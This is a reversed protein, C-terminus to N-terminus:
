LNYEVPMNMGDYLGKQKEEKFERKAKEYVEGNLIAIYAEKDTSLEEAIKDCKQAIICLYNYKRADEIEQTFNM